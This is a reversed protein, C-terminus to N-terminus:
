GNKSMGELAFELYKKAKQLDETPTDHKFPARALYKIANGVCYAVYGDKYGDTIEKILEITEFRGQKYHAPHEVMDPAATDPGEETTRNEKKAYLTYEEHALPVGSDKITDVEIGSGDDYVEIVEVVEGAIAKDNKTAWGNPLIQVLDGEKAKIM